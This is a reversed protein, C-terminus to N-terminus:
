SLLKKIATSLMYSRTKKAPDVIVFFGSEVWNQCLQRITRDSLKLLSQLEVATILPQKQMSIIVKRQRPDLSQLIDSKDEVGYISAKQAHKYIKEYSVRMGSCFYVMWATIDADARGLYYNHSPGISLAHYYDGIKQAYYEDLSYIGKLGYSRMHLILTALLRATRGNGDYYPHITACQYHAVAAILPAPYEPNGLHHNIWSVLEAMLSSVDQAEPPLYVIAGSAGDRIVNQGDRYPTSKGKGTILAHLKKIMSQTISGETKAWQEVQILAHYYHNVEQVDRERGVEKKQHIVQAVQALSLRNGEIFTSYHTSELRSTERLGALVRPTIPLQAIEKKLGEINMLDTAIEPTITFLPNFM